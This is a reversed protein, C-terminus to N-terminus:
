DRQCAYPESSRVEQVLLAGVKDLELVILYVSSRVRVCVRATRTIVKMSEEIEDGSRSIIGVKAAAEVAFAAQTKASVHKRREGAAAAVAAATAAAVASVRAQSVEDEGTGTISRHGTDSSTATDARRRTAM